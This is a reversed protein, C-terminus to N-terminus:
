STAVAVPEDAEDGVADGVAAGADRGDGAAADAAAGTDFSAVGAGVAEDDLAVAPVVPDDVDVFEVDVAAAADGAGFCADPGTLLGAAACGLGEAGALLAGVEVGEGVALESEFSSHRSTTQTPM